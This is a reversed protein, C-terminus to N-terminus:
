LKESPLKNKAQLDSAILDLPIAQNFKPKLGPDTAHHLGFIDLDVTLCPSGSSGADTTTDYRVRTGTGNFDLVAGWAVELSRGQPHQPVVVFDRVALVQRRADLDFWGREHDPSAHTRGFKERLRLLAYDLEEPGAEGGGTRDSDSPPSYAVLWDPALRCISGNDQDPKKPAPDAGAHDHYDFRCVTEEVHGPTKLKDVVHFNTLVLEPGALFGTGLTFPTEVRCVREGLSRFRSMFKGYDVFRSHRAVMSELSPSPPAPKKLDYKQAVDEYVLGFARAVHQVASNGPREAYALAVLELTKGRQETWELLEGVTFYFGRQTGVYNALVIGWKFRLALTLGALDFADVIADAIQELQPGSLKTSPRLDADPM